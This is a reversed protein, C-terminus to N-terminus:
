YTNDFSFMRQSQMKLKYYDPLKQGDIPETSKM